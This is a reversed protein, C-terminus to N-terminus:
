FDTNVSLGKQAAVCIATKGKLQEKSIKMM